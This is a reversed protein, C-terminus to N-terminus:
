ASAQFLLSPLMTPWLRGVTHIAMSAKRESSAVTVNFIAWDQTPADWDGVRLSWSPLRLENGVKRKNQRGHFM